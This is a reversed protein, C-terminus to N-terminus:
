SQARQSIQIHPGSQDSISLTNSLVEYILTRGAAHLCIGMLIDLHTM